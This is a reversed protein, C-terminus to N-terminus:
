KQKLQSFFNILLQSLSKDEAVFRMRVPIDGSLFCYPNGMQAIYSLIKEKHPLGQNITISNIDAITSRDINVIDVQSMEFLEQSNMM